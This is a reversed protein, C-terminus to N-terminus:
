LGDVLGVSGTDTPYVSVYPPVSYQTQEKATNCRPKGIKKRGKEKDNCTPPNHMSSNRHWSEYKMFFALM